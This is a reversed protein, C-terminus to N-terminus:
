LNQPEIEWCAIGRWTKSCQAGHTPAFCALVDETPSCKVTFNLVEGECIHCASLYLTHMQFLHQYLGKIKCPFCSWSKHCPFCRMSHCQTKVQVPPTPALSGGVYGDIFKHFTDHVNQRGIIGVFAMTLPGLVPKHSWNRKSYSAAKIHVETKEAPLPRM